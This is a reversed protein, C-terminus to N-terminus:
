LNLSLLIEMYSYELEKPVYVDYDGFEVRLYNNEPLEILKLEPLSFRGANLPDVITKRPVNFLMIKRQKITDEIFPENILKWFAARANEFPAWSKESLSLFCAKIREGLKYYPEASGGGYGLVVVNSNPNQISDKMIKDIETQSLNPIALPHNIPNAPDTINLAWGFLSQGDAPPRSLVESPDIGYKECFPIFKEVVQEGYKDKLSRILNDDTKKATKEVINEVTEKSVQKTSESITAETTDKAAKEAVGETTEKAADKVLEKEIEKQATNEISEAIIKSSSEQGTEKLTKESATELSDKATKELVDEGADKTVRTTLGETAEEAFNEAAQETLEETTEEALNGAAEIAVKETAVQAVEKV